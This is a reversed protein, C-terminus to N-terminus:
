FEELSLYNELKHIEIFSSVSIISNQILNELYPLTM